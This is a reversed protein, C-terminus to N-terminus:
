VPAECDIIAFFARNQYQKESMCHVNCQQRCATSRSASICGTIQTLTNFFSSKIKLLLKIKAEKQKCSM